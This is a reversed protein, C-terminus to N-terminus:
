SLMQGFIFIFIDFYVLVANRQCPGRVKANHSGRKGRENCFGNSWSLPYNLGPALDCKHKATGLTVNIGLLTGVCTCALLGFLSPPTPSPPPLLRVCIHLKAQPLLRPKFIPRKFVELEMSVRVTYKGKIYVL